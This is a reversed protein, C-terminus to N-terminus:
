SIVQGLASESRTSSRHISQAVLRVHRSTVLEILGIAGVVRVFRFPIRGDTQFSSGFTTGLQFM